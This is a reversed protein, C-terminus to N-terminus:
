PGRPGPGARRPTVQGKPAHTLPCIVWVRAGRTEGRGSVLRVPAEGLRATVHSWAKEPPSAGALREVTSRSEPGALVFLATEPSADRIVVQESFLYHDLSEAVKEAMGRPTVLWV